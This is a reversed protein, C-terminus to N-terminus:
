PDEHRLSKLKTQIREAVDGNRGVAREFGVRLRKPVHDLLRHECFLHADICETDAFMM